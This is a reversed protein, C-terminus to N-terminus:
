KPSQPPTVPLWLLKCDKFIDWNLGFHMGQGKLAKPINGYDRLFFRHQSEEFYVLFPSSDDGPM